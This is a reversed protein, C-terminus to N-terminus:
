VSRQQVESVADCRSALGTAKREDLHVHKQCQVQLCGGRVAGGSLPAHLGEM